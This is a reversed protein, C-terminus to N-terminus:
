AQRRGNLESDVSKRSTAPHGTPLWNLRSPYQTTSPKTGALRVRSGM